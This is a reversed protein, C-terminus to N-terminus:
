FLKSGSEAERSAIRASNREAEKVNQWRKLAKEPHSLVNAAEMYLAYGKDSLNILAARTTSDLKDIITWSLRDIVREVVKVLIPLNQKYQILHAGPTPDAARAVLDHEFEEALREYDDFRYKTVVFYTLCPEVLKRLIPIM